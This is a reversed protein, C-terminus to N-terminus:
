EDVDNDLIEQFRRQLAASPGMGLDHVMRQRVRQYVAMADAARGVGALAVMLQEYFREHLPHELTLVELDGIIAQHRGLELDLTILRETVLVREEELHVASGYLSANDERIGHLVEGKWLELAQRLETAATEPDEHAIDNAHKHLAHFVEVDLEDSDIHLCYGLEGSSIRRHGEGSGLWGDLDSRLRSIHAQLANATHDPGSNPWLRACLQASSMVKGANLLLTALVVRRLAGNVDIWGGVGYVQIPGLLRFRLM